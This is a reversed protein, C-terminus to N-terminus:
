VALHRIRTGCLAQKDNFLCQEQAQSYKASLVGEVIDSCDVIVDSEVFQETTSDVSLQLGYPSCLVFVPLGFLHVADRDLFSALSYKYLL